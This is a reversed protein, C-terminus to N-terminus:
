YIQNKGEPVTLYGIFWVNPASTPVTDLFGWSLDEGEQWVGWSLFGSDVGRKDESFGSIANVFLDTIYERGKQIRLRTGVTGGSTLFNAFGCFVIGCSQAITIQRSSDMTPAPTAAGVPTNLYAPTIEHIEMALGKVNAIRNAIETAKSKALALIAQGEPSDLRIFVM